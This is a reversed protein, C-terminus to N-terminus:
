IRGNSSETFDKTKLKGIIRHGMRSVLDVKPRVVVGEAPFNGWQSTFGNKVFTTIDSLNSEGLVPVSRIGMKVAIDQVDPFKLWWKFVMVDFLIFDVDNSIYNGGGKQIRAGYGEGYLCIEKGVFDPVSDFKTIPFLEQLKKLLFPPIQANDTKGGFVVAQGDWYVRINTGDVKETVIWKNDALYEFEPVRWQGVIVKFKEDRNYLTEIKPYELM